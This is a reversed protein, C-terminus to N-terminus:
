MEGESDSSAYGVLTSATSSPVPAAPVFPAPPPVAPAAPPAVAPVAPPVGSESVAATESAAAPAAPEAEVPAPTDAADPEISKHAKGKSPVVEERAPVLSMLQCKGRREAAAFAEKEWVELELFEVIGYDPPLSRFLWEIKSAAPVSVYLAVHAWALADDTQATKGENGHLRAVSDLVHQPVLPERRAPPASFAVEGSAELAAGKRSWWDLFRTTTENRLRLPYIRLLLMADSAAELGGSADPVLGLASRRDTRRRKAEPEEADGQGLARRLSAGIDADGAQGHVSVGEADPVCPFTCQVTYLVSKKKTDWYTKNQQRKSMGDPLLMIPLKRFMIQKSLQERRHQAAPVRRANAGPKGADPLMRADSLGKGTSSVVRGVQSLFQYDQMMQTHDYDRMAIFRSPDRAGRQLLSSPAGIAARREHSAREAACKASSKHQQFCPLTYKSSEAGCVACRMCQAQPM